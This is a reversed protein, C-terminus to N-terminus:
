RQFRTAAPIQDVKQEIFWDVIERHTAMWVNSHGRIHDLIRAFMASMLPRGGFHSHLGIHLLATQEQAYLFDFTDCYVELYHRPSARLVRNDVFDCWPLAIISGSETTQRRPLTGDLADAHWKVGEQVLLDHTEPTWGYVPSCWGDPRVGSQQELIDLCRRITTRQEVTTMDLLFQDQSYGHAAVTHGSRVIHRVVEPYLEAALASMFVTARLAHRDLIGLIRHIGENAGFQSWQRAAIDATGPKLATTRPFYGPSKGEAWTELLVSIAVAVRANSRWSHVPSTM